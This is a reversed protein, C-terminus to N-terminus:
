DTDLSSSDEDEQSERYMKVISEVKAKLKQQLDDHKNFEELNKILEELGSKSKADKFECVMFDNDFTTISRQSQTIM